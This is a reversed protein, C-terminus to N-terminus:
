DRGIYGLRSCAKIIARVTTDVSFKQIRERANLAMERRLADNSLIKELRDALLVVDGPPYTYGTM